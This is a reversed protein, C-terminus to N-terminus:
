INRQPPKTMVRDFKASTYGEGQAKQAGIRQRHVMLEGDAEATQATSRSVGM